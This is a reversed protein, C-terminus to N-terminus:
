IQFFGGQNCWRCAVEVFGCFTRRLVQCEKSDYLSGFDLRRQYCRRGKIKSISTIPTHRQSLAMRRSADREDNNSGLTHCRWQVSECESRISELWLLLEKPGSRWCLLERDFCKQRSKAQIQFRCDKEWTRSDM